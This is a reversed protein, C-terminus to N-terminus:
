SFKKVGPRSSSPGKKLMLWIKHVDGEEEKEEIGGKIAM